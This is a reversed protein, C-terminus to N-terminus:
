LSMRQAPPRSARLARAVYRDRINLSFYMDPSLAAQFAQHVGAPVNDYVYTKGNVFCVFLRAANIEYFISRIATTDVAGGSRSFGTLM